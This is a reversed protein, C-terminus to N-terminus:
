AGIGPWPLDDPRLRGCLLAGLREECLLAHAKLAPGLQQFSQGLRARQEYRQVSRDDRWRGREKVGARDRYGKAIDVAPGSHRSQYPVMKPLGLRRRCREFMSLYDPYSFPFLLEGDKRTEYLMKLVEPLFPSISTTLCISDNVAYTKSRAPREEPFLTVHWDKAISPEPPVVDQRQVLLPESPRMYTSLKFVLYVAM